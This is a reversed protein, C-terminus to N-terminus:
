RQSVVPSGIALAHGALGFAAAGGEKWRNKPGPQTEVAAVELDSCFRTNERQKATVHWPPPRSGLSANSIRLDSQNLSIVSLPFNSKPKVASVQLEGPAPSSNSAHCCGFHNFFHVAQRRGLLGFDNLVRELQGAVPLQARIFETIQSFAQGSGTIRCFDNSQLGRHLM